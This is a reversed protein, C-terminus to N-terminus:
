AHSEDDGISPKKFTKDEKEDENEPSFVNLSGGRRIKTLTPDPIDDIIAYEKEKAKQEDDLEVLQKENIEKVNTYHNKDKM